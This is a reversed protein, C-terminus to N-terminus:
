DKTYTFTMAHFYVDRTTAGSSQKCHVAVSDGAAYTGAPTVTIIARAPNSNFSVGDTAGLTADNISVRCQLTEFTSGASEKSVSTRYSGGSVYDTPVEFTTCSWDSDVTGDGGDDYNLMPTGASTVGFSPAANNGGATHSIAASSTGSTGCNKFGGIDLQVKGTTNAIATANVSGSPFTLTTGIFEIESVNAHGLTVKDTNTDVKFYTTADVTNGFVWASVTNDLIKIGGAADWAINDVLKDGDISNPGPTPNVIAGSADAKKIELVSGAIAILSAFVLFVVIEVSIFKTKKM